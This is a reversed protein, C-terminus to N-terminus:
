RSGNRYKAHCDSCIQNLEIWRQDLVRASRGGGLEARIDVATGEASRLWLQFDARWLKGDDSRRLERFLEALLTAENEGSLDPHDMPTTWGAKRVVNLRDCTRDIDAMADVFRGTNWHEPWACQFADLEADSVVRTNAVDSFLGPYNPSTGALHLFSTGQEPTMRGLTILSAAVAAPGRHLGHHCHIYVPGPLDRIAKAIALRREAPVGSYQIPLHVYRMGYRQALMATPKRGDVSIITKVGQERLWAFEADAGPESGSIVGPVAIRVHEPEVPRLDADTIVTQGPESQQCATLLASACIAITIMGRNKM